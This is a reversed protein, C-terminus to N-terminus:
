QYWYATARMEISARPLADDPCDPDDFAVHPVCHARAPDSDNTKFVLAENAKM